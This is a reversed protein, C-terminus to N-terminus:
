SRYIDSKLIAARASTFAGPNESTAIRVIATAIAAFVASNETKSRSTKFGTVMESGEESTAIRFL